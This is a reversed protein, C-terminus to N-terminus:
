AFAAGVVSVHNLATDTAPDGKSGRNVDAPFLVSSLARLDPMACRQCLERAINRIREALAPPSIVTAKTGWSLVWREVEELGSLRM